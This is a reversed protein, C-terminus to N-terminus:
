KNMMEAFAASAAAQASASITALEAETEQMEEDAPASASASEAAIRAYDEPIAQQRKLGSPEGIQTPQIPQPLLNDLAGTLSGNSSQASLTSLIAPVWNPLNVRPRNQCEDCKIIGSDTFCGPCILEHCYFCASFTDFAKTQYCIPCEMKTKDEQM